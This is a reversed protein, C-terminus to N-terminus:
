TKSFKNQKWAHSHKEILSGTLCLPFLVVWLTVGEFFNGSQPFQVRQGPTGTPLFLIPLPSRNQLRFHFKEKKYELYM